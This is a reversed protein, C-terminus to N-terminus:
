DIDAKPPLVRARQPLISLQIGTGFRLGFTDAAALLRSNIYDDWIHLDAQTPIQILFGFTPNLVRPKIAAKFGFLEFLKMSAPHLSHATKSNIIVEFKTPQLM